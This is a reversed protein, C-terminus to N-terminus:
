NLFHFHFGDDQPRPLGPSVTEWGGQMEARIEAAPGPGPKETINPGNNGPRRAGPTIHHHVISQEAAGLASGVTAFEFATLGM